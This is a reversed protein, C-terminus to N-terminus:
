APRLRQGLHRAHRAGGVFRVSGDGLCINM